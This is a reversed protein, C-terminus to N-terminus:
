ASSRGSHNVHSHRAMRDITDRAQDAEIDSFIGNSSAFDLIKKSEPNLNHYFQMYLFSDELGHHPCSNLLSNYNEWVEFLTEDAMQRFRNMQSRMSATKEALFYEEYFAMVLTDWDTIGWVARNLTNLWIKTKYRLSFPLMM